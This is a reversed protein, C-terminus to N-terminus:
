KDRTQTAILKALRARAAANDPHREVTLQLVAIAEAQRNLQLLVDALQDALSISDPTSNLGDRLTRIADNTRGTALYAAALNASQQPTRQGLLRPVELLTVIAAFDKDALLDSSLADLALSLEPDFALAQRWEAEADKSTHASRQTDAASGKTDQSSDLAQALIVYLKIDRYGFQEAQQLAPIAEKIDGSLDLSVGFMFAVHPADKQTPDMQLSAAFVDAACEFQTHDGFWVGLDNLAAVTPKLKLQPKM